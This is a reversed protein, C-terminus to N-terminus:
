VSLAEQARKLDEIIPLNQPCVSECEGCEICKSADTGEEVLNKYWRKPDEVQYMSLENFLGFIRPIKVDNPCPQCYECETCDVAIRQRYINKVEEIVKLEAESMALPKADEASASALNDELEEMAGMGSLVTSVEPFNWLWRLAWNAPSRDAGYADFAAKVEAPVNKALKGGRLPEMIVVAIGKGGAYKLGEVGAQYEEDMYNLQIQCMDWDYGDIIEKFVDLSDHFSFARHKIRGDAVAQDLWELIGLRKALEWRERNLAHLLYFDICDTQLKELQENLLRDCDEREKVLWMPLKTALKVKDRYGDQLAKGVLIESQEQHYGYATDVYNVGNDIAHRILGIAEPENIKGADEDIIPLRMCGYGLASVTFDLSGCKRYQM